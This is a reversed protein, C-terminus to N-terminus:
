NDTLLSYSSRSQNLFEELQAYDENELVSEIENLAHRFFQIANLLNDRNSQLIGMMMDAPTGALRSASRFGPGVLPAFEQPTSHALASALLFPLHSTSALVRDHEEATMELPHAGVASILQKAASKARPSTRELPTLVFPAGRYLNPDANELGLKEKGCIPHGGIPDFSAPLASMARVIGRKTSALDLLTIPLGEAASLAPQYNTTPLQHLLNLIAPVPAALILLDVGREGRSLPQPHPLAHDIIKKSLALELTPPHPDFGILRACKGKLALALSGGMLGLGLIGVTAHELSFDDEM